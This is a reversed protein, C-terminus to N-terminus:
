KQRTIYQLAVRPINMIPRIRNPSYLDVWDSPTKTILDHIIMASATGNSLGWKRFATATYLNKSWPYLKGALPPGDYTMYDRDSWVYEIEEVGFRERAYRALREIKNESSFRMGSIHGEGGILIYDKLDTNFPLISYEDKDPSIYMGSPPNKVRGAVIYSEEPYELMCFAGRAILPLTPVNTAVVIHNAIIKGQSTKISGPSGDRISIVNSQEFIYSGDGNIKAALGLLYKLTNIKGQNTFKVAGQVDFPLPTNTEFSAHLGLGYAAKAEEKFKKVESKKTTFVYNDERKWDCAIKEKKVISEVKELAAENAQGYLSAQRDGLRKQFDRYILGHQSTVKGTTRGTTGGGVTDKDLVAVTYGSEKLLYATTLGTIGAGVIVADVKLKGKLNPYQPGPSFERWLSKGSPHVSKM